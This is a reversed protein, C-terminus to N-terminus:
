ALIWLLVLLHKQLLNFMDFLSQNFIRLITRFSSMFQWPLSRLRLCAASDEAFLFIIWAIINM